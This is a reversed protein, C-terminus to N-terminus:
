YFSSSIQVPTRSNQLGNPRSIVAKKFSIISSSRASALAQLGPSLAPGASCLGLTQFLGPRIKLCARCPGFSLLQGFPNKYCAISNQAWFGKKLFGSGSGLGIDMAQFNQARELELYWDKQM